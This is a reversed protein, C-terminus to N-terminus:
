FNNPVVIDFTEKGEKSRSWKTNDWENSTMNRLQQKKDLLSQLTLFFLQLSLSERTFSRKKKTFKRMLTLTKYQEYIFITFVKAKDIVGKFSSLKSKGELM